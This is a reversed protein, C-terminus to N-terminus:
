RFPIEQFDLNMEQADQCVIEACLVKVQVERPVGGQFVKECRYPGLVLVEQRCFEPVPLILGESGNKEDAPFIAIKRIRFFGQVPLFLNVTQERLGPSLSPTKGLHLPRCFSGPKEGM